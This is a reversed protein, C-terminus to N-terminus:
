LTSKAVVEGARREMGKYGLLRDSMDQLRALEDTWAAVQV